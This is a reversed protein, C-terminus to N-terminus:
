NLQRSIPEPLPRDFERWRAALLEPHERQARERFERPLEKAGGLKRGSWAGLM